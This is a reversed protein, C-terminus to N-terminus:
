QKETQQIIVGLNNPPIELNEMISSITTISPIQEEKKIEPLYIELVQSSQRIKNIYLELVIVYIEHTKLPYCQGHNENFILKAGQDKKM